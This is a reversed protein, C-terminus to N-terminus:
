KKANFVSQIDKLGVGFAQRAIADLNKESGQLHITQHTHSASTGPQLPLAPSSSELEYFQGMQKGGPQSPGDNYSNLVDGSYPKKQIEWMSNVYDVAGAPLTFSVLTLTRSSADYSGLLPKVRQPSLGIKSRYNADARFYLVGDMVVLRDAPVKGFYSDNVM